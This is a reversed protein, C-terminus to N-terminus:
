GSGEVSHFPNLTAHAPRRPFAPLRAASESRSTRVPKRGQWAGRGSPFDEPKESKPLDEPNRLLTVDTTQEGVSM